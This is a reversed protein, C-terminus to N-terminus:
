ELMEADLAVIGDRECFHSVESCTVDSRRKRVHEAAPEERRM